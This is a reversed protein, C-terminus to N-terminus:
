KYFSGECAVFDYLYLVKAIKLEISSKASEYQQKFLSKAVADTPAYGEPGYSWEGKITATTFEAITKAVKESSTTFLKGDATYHDKTKVETYRYNFIITIIDECSQANEYDDTDCNVQTDRSVEYHIGSVLKDLDSVKPFLLCQERTVDFAESSKAFTSLSILSLTILIFAKM